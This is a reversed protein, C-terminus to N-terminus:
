ILKGKLVADYPLLVEDLRDAEPSRPNKIQAGHGSYYFIFTDDANCRGAFAQLAEVVANRTAQEHLLVQPLCQSAAYKDLLLSKFIAVDNEPCRLSRVGDPIAVLKPDPCNAPSLYNGVGVLLAHTTQARAPLSLFGIVLLFIILRLMHQLIAIIDTLDCIM